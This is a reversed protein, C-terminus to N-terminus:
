SNVKSSLQQLWTQAEPPISTFHVLYRHKSQDLTRIVKAYLEMVQDDSKAPSWRLMLNVYLQLPACAELVGRRRSVGILSAPQMQETLHKDSLRVYHLPQPEALVM